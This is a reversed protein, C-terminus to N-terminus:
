IYLICVTSGLSRFYKKIIILDVITEYLHKPFTPILRTGGGGKLVTYVKTLIINNGEYRDKITINHSISKFKWYIHIIHQFSLSSKKKCRVMTLSWVFGTYIQIQVLLIKDQRVHNFFRNKQTWGHHCLTKFTFVSSCYIITKM